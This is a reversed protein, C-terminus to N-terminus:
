WQYREHWLSVEHLHIWTIWFLLMKVLVQLQFMLYHLWWRLTILLCANVKSWTITMLVNNRMIKSIVTIIFLIWNSMIWWCSTMSVHILIPFLSFYDLKVNGNLTLEERWQSHRWAASYFYWWIDNVQIELRRLLLQDLISGNLIRSTVCGDM